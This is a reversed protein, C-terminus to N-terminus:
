YEIELTHTCNRTEWVTSPAVCARSPPSTIPMKEKCVGNDNSSGDSVCVTEKLALAEVNDKSLNVLKMIRQSSYFTGASVSMVLATIILYKIKM